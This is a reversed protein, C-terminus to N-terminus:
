CSNSVRHVYETPFKGCRDVNYYSSGASDTNYKEQAINFMCDAEIDNSNPAEPITGDSNPLWCKLDEAGDFMM